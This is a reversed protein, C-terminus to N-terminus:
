LRDNVVYMFCRMIVDVGKRLNILLYYGKIILIKPTLSMCPSRRGLGIYTTLAQQAGAGSHSAVLAKNLKQEMRGMINYGLISYSGDQFQSNPCAEDQSQPDPCSAHGSEYGDQTAVNHSLPLLCFSKVRDYLINPCM